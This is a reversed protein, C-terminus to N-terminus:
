EIVEDARLLLEGSIAIGLASATKRNIVLKPNTPQEVPLDRPKAGKLIKGVYNAANRYDDAINQGYSMLGGAAVLERTWAITPIRARIALEAIQGRQSFYFGDGQVILAGVRSKRMTGFAEAIQEPTRAQVQRAEIAMAKASAQVQSFIKLYNPNDTNVLAAVRSLRPVALRLLELYKTSIDDISNTVGTVNGGPHPLSAVFGLAVPDGVAVIVIPIDTTAQKVAQISPPTAALIVDVKMRVLESALGPLRDYKGDAFRWEYSINRGPVYGQERMRQLFPGYSPDAELSALVSRPSLIGVRYAKPPQQALAAAPATLAGLACVIALAYRRNM